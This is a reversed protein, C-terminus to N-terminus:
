YSWIKRIKKYFLKIIQASSAPLYELVSEVIKRIMLRRRFIYAMRDSEVDNYIKDINPLNLILQIDVMDKKEGRHAKFSIASNLSMFKIGMFNFYCSPDSIIRGPKVPMSNYESNHFKNDSYDDTIPQFRVLDLDIAKRLGYMELSASGDVLLDPNDIAEPIEAYIRKLISDEARLPAHNMFHMSNANLALDSIDHAEIYSDTSHLKKFHSSVFKKRISEKLGVMFSNDSSQVFVFKVKAGSVNGFREYSLTEMLNDSWWINRGYLSKMMRRQGISNLDVSKTGIVTCAASIEDFASNEDKPSLDLLCFIRVDNRLNIYERLMEDRYKDRLGIEALFEWDYRHPAEGVEGVVVDLDLAIACALRHAGNTVGQTSVPIFGKESDFGSISMSTFLKRYGQLYDALTTKGGESFGGPPRTAFMYALYLETGWSDDCNRTWARALSLKSM